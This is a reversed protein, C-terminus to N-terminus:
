KRNKFIRLWEDIEEKSTIEPKEEKKTNTAMMEKYFLYFEESTKYDYKMQKTFSKIRKDSSVVCINTYHKAKKNQIFDEILADASIDHSYYCMINQIEEQYTSDGKRKKGDFFVHFELNSRKRKLQILYHILREIANELQNEIMLEELEKFKYILNFGDIVFIM